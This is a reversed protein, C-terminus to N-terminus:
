HVSKALTKSVAAATQRPHASEHIHIVPYAGLHQEKQFGNIERLAAARANQIKQENAADQRNNVAVRGFFDNIVNTVARTPAFLPSRYLDTALNNKGVSAGFKYAGINVASKFFNGVVPLGEAGKVLPDNQAQTQNTKAGPLKGTLYNLLDGGLDVAITITGLKSLGILAKDILGVKTATQELSTALVGGSGLSKALISSGSAAARFSGVLQAGKGLVYSGVAGALVTGIVEALLKSEAKHKQLWSIVEATDHALTQLKPILKLGIKTAEDELASGIIELQRKLSANNKAAADQASNAKGIEGSLKTFSGAGENIIRVMAEAARSGFLTTSIQLQQQPTLKEFADHLKSIAAAMGIFQGKTNFLSIGTKGGQATIAELQAKYDKLGVLSTSQADTQSKIEASLEAEQARMNKVTSYLPSASTVTGFNAVTAKLGDLQSKLNALGANPAGGTAIESNVKALQEQLGVLSKGSGLLALQETVAKSGGTLRTLATAVVQTSQSSSIGNKALKVMLTAIDSLDPSVIGLRGHLRDVATSVTELSQNTMRGANFLVDSAYGAKSLAFGFSQMTQSLAATTDTLNGAVAENLDLAKNMFGLAQTSNLAHGEVSALQGSVHSFAAAIENGSAYSVGATNLFAQGIKDAAGITVNSNAAIKYVSEQYEQASKVSEYGIGAALAGGAILTIKGLKQYENSLVSVAEGQEKLAASTETLVGAGVLGGKSLLSGSAAFTSGLIAGVRSSWGKVEVEAPKLVQDLAAPLAPLGFLLKKDLADAGVVGGEVGFINTLQKNFSLKQKALEKELGKNVGGGLGAGALLGLDELSTALPRGSKDVLGSLNVGKQLEGDVGVGIGAGLAAGANEGAATLDRAAASGGQLEADVAKGFGTMLPRVEVYAIGILGGPM